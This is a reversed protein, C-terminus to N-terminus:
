WPGLAASPVWILEPLLMARPCWYLRLYSVLCQADECGEATVPAMSMVAVAPCHVRPLLGPRATELGWIAACAVWIWYLRAAAHGESM